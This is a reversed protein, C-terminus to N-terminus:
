PIRPLTPIEVSFDGYALAVGNLRKAAEIQKEPKDGFVDAIPQVARQLFAKEYAHGGPLDAFRVLKGTREVPESKSYHALLIQLVELEGSGQVAIGKIEDHVDGSVLDVTYGLFQM